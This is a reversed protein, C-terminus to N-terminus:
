VRIFLIKKMFRQKPTPNKVGSLGSQLAVIAEYFKFHRLYLVSLLQMVEARLGDEKAKDLVIGAKEYCEIADNFRKLAGLASAQNALAIGQRRSDGAEEFIIETGQTAELAAQAQKSRLLAVSRNNQMEASMLEDGMEAYAAAASSFAQAASAFDGAQYTRQAQDGMERPSLKNMM